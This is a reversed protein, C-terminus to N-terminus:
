QKAETAALLIAENCRHCSKDTLKLHFSRM